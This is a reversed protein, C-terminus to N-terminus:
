GVSKYHKGDWKEMTEMRHRGGYKAISETPKFERYGVGDYTKGVVKAKNKVDKTNWLRKMLQYTKLRSRLLM